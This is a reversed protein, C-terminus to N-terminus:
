ASVERDRPRLRATVLALLADAGDVAVGIRLWFLRLPRVVEAADPCLNAYDKETTLLAQAGMAQAQRALRRLQGPSYVHHDAFTVSELPHVGIESLTQWFSGPNALGCFATARLTAAEALPMEEPGGVEVWCQAM